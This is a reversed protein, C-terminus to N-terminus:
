LLNAIKRKTELDFSDLYNETTRVDSHGLAEKLFEISAGKNKAITAYTHRASYTTIQPLGLKKCAIGLGENVEAIFDHIRDKVQQPSLGERLVPFVYENQGGTKNGWRDIIEKIEARSIVVISKKKRQTFLTKQRDFIVFGDPLDKFKLHCVDTMNMGNCFYSFTWFDVGKRAKIDLTAFKLLKNKQDESLALKRGSASPVVYKDEKAEGFPYTEAPVVKWRNIALNFIRRMCEAYIKVTTVSRSRDIMWKEWRMLWKPTVMGFSLTRGHKENTYEQFCSLAQKYTDRTGIRGEEDLENIYTQFLGLPDKLSGKSTLQNEFSEFDVFPNNKVIEKAKEYIANLETQKQQLEKDKGPNWAIKEYEEPTAYIGTCYYKQITRKEITRTLRIKIHYRGKNEGTTTMKKKDLVKAITM